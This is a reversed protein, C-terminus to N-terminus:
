EYYAKNCHTTYDLHLVGLYYLAVYMSWGIHIIHIFIYEYIYIYIYIYNIENIDVKWKKQVKM